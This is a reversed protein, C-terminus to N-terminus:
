ILYAGAGIAEYTNTGLANKFEVTVSQGATCKIAMNTVVLRDTVTTTATAALLALVVGFVQTGGVTIQVFQASSTSVVLSSWCTAEIFAIVWSKGPTAPFTVTAKANTGPYNFLCSDYPTTVVALSGNAATSDSIGPGIVKQALPM